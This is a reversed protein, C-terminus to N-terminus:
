RCSTGTPSGGSSCSANARHVLRTLDSMETHDILHWYPGITQSATASPM